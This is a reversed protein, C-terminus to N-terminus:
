LSTMAPSEIHHVARGGGGSIMEWVQPDGYQCNGIASQPNLEAPRALGNCAAVGSDCGPACPTVRGAATLRQATCTQLDVEIGRQALSAKVDRIAALGGQALVDVKVLGIVEVADMDYHTTPYGKNSIFTPTLEHMAQRSLVVGCPHMKPYRPFGDLFEAM